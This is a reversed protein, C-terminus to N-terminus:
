IIPQYFSVARFNQNLTTKKGFKVHEQDLVKNGLILRNKIECYLNLVKDFMNKYRKRMEEKGEFLLKEPFNYIKIDVSYTDMFTEINRDNYANVQRQVLQEPTAESLTSQSNISQISIMFLFISLIKSKM